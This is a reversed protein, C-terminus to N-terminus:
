RTRREYLLPNLPGDIADGPKAPALWRELDKRQNENRPEAVTADADVYIITMVRRAEDTTNPPARHFTWGSHFSVEGLEYPDEVYPLGTADVEAAIRAESEEGIGLDRGLDVEHSGASFALPGLELPTRQLPIWATCTDPTSFPWYFQDAHWPTLRGGREKYLAQDHYLRVARVGMLEAAIRALRPAFVLERALESEPWLNSVQLFAARYATREEVPLTETNLELVKRTIEVGHRELVEADLVDRLKVFGDRRFSDIKAEDLAYPEHLLPSAASTTM